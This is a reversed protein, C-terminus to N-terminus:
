LLQNLNKLDTEIENIKDLNHDRELIVSKVDGYNIIDGILELLDEQIPSNHYDQYVGGKISYGVVHLQVINEPHIQHLWDRADFSHNKSNIFLNTADLLLRCDAKECLRNLFDPEEYEGGPDLFFTINELLMPKGCRQTIEQINESFIALTKETRPLPNLHGLDIENSRSFAIHESIWDACSEQAVRQFQKLIEPDLPGPTGLSLGLGHVYVPWKESLQQLAEASQDFFHEATIELCQILDPNADIWDRLSHRYGIGVLTKM